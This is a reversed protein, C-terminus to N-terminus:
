GAVLNAKQRFLYGNYLVHLHDSQAMIETHIFLGRRCDRSLERGGWVVVIDSYGAFKSVVCSM